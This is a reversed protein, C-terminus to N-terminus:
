NGKNTKMLVIEKKKELTKYSAINVYYVQLLNTTTSILILLMGSHAKIQSNTKESKIKNISSRYVKKFITFIKSKRIKNPQISFYLDTKLLDSEEQSLEYQALNTIDKNATFTPLSSSKTLSSLKKQQTNLM